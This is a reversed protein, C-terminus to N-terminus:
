PEPGAPTTNDMMTMTQPSIERRERSRAPAARDRFLMKAVGNWDLSSAKM